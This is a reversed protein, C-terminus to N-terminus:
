FWVSIALTLNGSAAFDALGLNSNVQKCSLHCGELREVKNGMDWDDNAYLYFVWAVFTVFYNTSISFPKDEDM